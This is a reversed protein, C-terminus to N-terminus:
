GSPSKETSKIRTSNHFRNDIMWKLAAPGRLVSKVPVTEDSYYDGPEAGLPPDKGRPLKPSVRKVTPGADAVAIAAHGELDEDTLQNRPKGLKKSVHFYVSGGVKHPEDPGALYVRPPPNYYGFANNTQQGTKPRIGEREIADAHDLLTGHYLVEPRRAKELAEVLTLARLLSNM